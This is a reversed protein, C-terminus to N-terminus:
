LSPLRQKQTRVPLFLDGMSAIREPVDDLEFRLGPLDRRTRVQEVERWSLPTSVTPRPMARLSYAAVTTKSRDNQSWDILVKGMRLEKRMISTVRKPLRREMLMAVAHAFQKTRDFDTPTNLPVWLHLGKGGSTKVVSQLGLTELVDRLELAIEICDLLDAPEGPDLDFVLSRPREPRACTGLLPHLEISGLNAMWLLSAVDPLTCYRIETGEGRRPMPCVKAWPPRYPPCRKEYFFKGEVGDPFRKMTIPHDKLHALLTPAVAYYYEIVERKTTGTSPYLVKDLNTLQLKNRKLLREDVRIM